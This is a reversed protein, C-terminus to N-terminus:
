YLQESLPQPLRAELGDGIDFDDLEKAMRPFTIGRTIYDDPLVEWFMADFREM